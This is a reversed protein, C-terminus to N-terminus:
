GPKAGPEGLPRRASAQDGTLDRPRLATFGIQGVLAVV